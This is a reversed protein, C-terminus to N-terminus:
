DPRGGLRRCIEAATQEREQLVASTAAQARNWVIVDAPPSGGLCLIQEVRKGLAVVVQPQLEEILPYAYHIAARRAVDDSFASCSETRWPLCNSYAIQDLTLRGARLIEACHRTWIPWRECAARYANQAARFSEPSPNGAFGALSKMMLDDGRTRKHSPGNGPNIGLFLVRSSAYDKGVYGFQPVLDDQAIQPVREVPLDAREGGLFGARGIELAKVATAFGLPPSSTAPTRADVRELWGRRICYSIFQHPSGKRKGCNLHGRVADSLDWFDASGKRQLITEIIDWSRQNHGATMQPTRAVRYRGEYKDMGTQNRM